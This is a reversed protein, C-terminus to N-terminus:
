SAEEPVERVGRLVGHMKMFQEVPMSETRQLIERSREDVQCM